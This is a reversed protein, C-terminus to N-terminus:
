TIFLISLYVSSHIKWLFKSNQFSQVANHNAPIFDDVVAYEFEVIKFVVRTKVVVTALYAFSTSGLTSCSVHSTPIVVFACIHCKLIIKSLKMSSCNINGLILIIRFNTMLWRNRSKHFISYDSRHGVFCLQISLNACIIKKKLKNRIAYHEM